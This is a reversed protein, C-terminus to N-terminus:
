FPLDQSEDVPATQTAAVQAEGEKLVEIKWATITNYLRTVGDKTHKRGRLNLYFKIESGVPATLSGAKAQQLEIEFDQPYEGPITVWIKQKKFTETVQEVAHVQQLIAILEM